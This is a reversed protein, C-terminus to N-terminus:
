GFKQAIFDVVEQVHGYYDRIRNYTVGVSEGHAIKNRLAVISDLSDRRAGEIFQELERRWDRDFSGILTLLREANINQPRRLQNAAYRSVTPSSQKRCHEITLESISAELFGSVLICLYRAFDSRVELDVESLTDVRVFTADLRRRAGNIGLNEHM